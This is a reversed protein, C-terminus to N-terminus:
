RIPGLLVGRPYAPRQSPWQLVVADAIPAVLRGSLSPREIRDYVEIFVTPIGLARATWFFPVALAAGTSVLVDPREACLVRRALRTNAALARLNRHTPGRAWYVREAALHARADLQDLTVWFRDHREWWSRIWMLHALHGGPSGVLGIRLSM